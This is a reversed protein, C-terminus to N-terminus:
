FYFTSDSIGPLTSVLNKKWEVKRNLHVTFWSLPSSYFIYCNYIRKPKVNNNGKKIPNLLSSQQEPKALDTM